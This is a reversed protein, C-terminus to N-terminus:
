KYGVSDKTAVAFESEEPDDGEPEHDSEGDDPETEGRGSEGDSGWSAEIELQGDDHDLDMTAADAAAPLAGSVYLATGLGNRERMLEAAGPMHPVVPCAGLLRRNEDVVLIAEQDDLGALRFGPKSRHCRFLVCNNDQLAESCGFDGFVLVELSLIGRPGFAWQAFEFFTRDLLEFSSVRSTCYWPPLHTRLGWSGVEDLDRSTQRVHLLTLTEKCSFPRLM